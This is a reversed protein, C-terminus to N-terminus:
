LEQLTILNSNGLRCRCICSSVLWSSPILLILFCEPVYIDMSIDFKQESILYIIDYPLFWVVLPPLLMINICFTHLLNLFEVGSWILVFRALYINQCSTIIDM